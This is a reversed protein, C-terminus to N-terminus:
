GPGPRQARTICADHGNRGCPQVHLVVLFVVSWAIQSPGGRGRRPEVDHRGVAQTDEVAPAHEVEASGLGDLDSQCGSCLFRARGACGHPARVSRWTSRMTARPTPHTQSWGIDHMAVPHLVDHAGGPPRHGADDGCGPPPTGCGLCPAPMAARPRTASGARGPGPGARSGPRLAASGPTRSGVARSTCSFSRRRRRSRHEPGSGSRSGGRPSMPSPSRTRTSRPLWRRAPRTPAPSTCCAPVRVGPGPAAGQRTRGPWGGGGGAPRGGRSRWVAGRFGAGRRRDRRSRSGSSSWGRGFITQVPRQAPGPASRPSTRSARRASRRTCSTSCVDALDGRDLGTRVMEGKTSGCLLQLTRAVAATSRASCHCGEPTAVPQAAEAQPPAPQM